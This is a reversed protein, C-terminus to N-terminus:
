VRAPSLVHVRERRQVGAKAKASCRQGPGCWRWTRWTRWTGTWTCQWNWPQHPSVRASALQHSYESCCGGVCRSM